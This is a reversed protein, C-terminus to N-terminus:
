VGSANMRRLKKTCRGCRLIWDVFSAYFWPGVRFKAKESNLSTYTDCYSLVSRGSSWNWQSKSHQLFFFTNEQEIAKSNKAEVVYLVWVLSQSIAAGHVEETFNIFWDILAPSLSLLVSENTGATCTHGAPHLYISSARTQLAPPPIPLVPHLSPTPRFRSLHLSGLM